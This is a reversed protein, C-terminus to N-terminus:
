GSRSGGRARRATIDTGPLRVARGTGHMRRAAFGTAAPALQAGCGMAHATRGYWAPRSHEADCDQHDDRRTPPGSVIRRDGARGTPPRTRGCHDDVGGVAPVRQDQRGADGPRVTHHVLGLGDLMKEGSGARGGGTLECHRGDWLVRLLGGNGVDVVLVQGDQGHQQVASRKVRDRVRKASVLGLDGPPRLPDDATQTWSEPDSAVVVVDPGAVARPWSEGSILGGRCPTGEPEANRGRRRLRRIL